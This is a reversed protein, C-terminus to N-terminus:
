LLNSMKMEQHKVSKTNKTGKTTKFNKLIFRISSMYLFAKHLIKICLTKM